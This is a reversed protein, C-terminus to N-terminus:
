KKKQILLGISTSVYHSLQLRTHPNGKFPPLDVVFDSPLWGLSFDFPEVYHGEAELEKKVALFDQQRFFVLEDNELTDSDSSINYETTHIAWGGPKLTDLQNKIFALGNKISGLHELSSASWNFDFDRLDTPIHNMDVPRYSVLEKFKKDDCIGKTNLTDLGYCLQNGVTWGKKEGIDTDLDTAVISCGYLACVAALSETGVAFGLGKNGKKLMGREELAQLMYCFEWLKRHLTPTEKMVETWKKFWPQYTDIEKCLSSIRKDNKTNALYEDIYVQYAVPGRPQAETPQTPTASLKASIDDLKKDISNIKRIAEIFSQIKNAM